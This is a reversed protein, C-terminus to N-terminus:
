LKCGNKLYNSFESVIQMEKLKEEYYRLRWNDGAEDKWKEKNNEDLKNLFCLFEKSLGGFLDIGDSIYFEGTETLERDPNLLLISLTEELKWVNVDEYYYWGAHGTASTTLLIADVNEYEDLVFSKETFVGNGGFVYLYWEDMDSLTELSIVLINLNLGTSIPFKNQASKLFDKLKNDMRTSEEIGSYDSGVYNHGIFNSIENIIAKHKILREVLFIKLTNREETTIRKEMNPCKVEINISKNRFEFSCEPNYGNNYKPEYKFNNNHVRLVYYLVNIESVIQLYRQRDYEKDFLFKKLLNEYEKKTLNEQFVVMTEIFDTYYRHKNIYAQKIPHKDSTKNILDEISEM